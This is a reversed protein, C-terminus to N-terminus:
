STPYMNPSCQRGPGGLRVLTSLGLLLSERFEMEVDAEGQQDLPRRLEELHIKLLDHHKQLGQGRLLPALVVDVHQQALGEDPLREKLTRGRM